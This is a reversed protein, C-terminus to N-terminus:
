VEHSVLCQRWLYLFGVLRGWKRSMVAKKEQLSELAIGLEGECSLHFVPSGQPDLSSSRAEWHLPQPNLVQPQPALSGGAKYDFFWFM